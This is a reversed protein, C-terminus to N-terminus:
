YSNTFANIGGSLKNLTIKKMRKVLFDNDSLQAMKMINHLTAPKLDSTGHYPVTVLGLITAHKFHYHSGVVRRLYWGKNQLVRIVQYHKMEKEKSIDMLFPCRKRIVLYSFNKFVDENM